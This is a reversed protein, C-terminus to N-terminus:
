RFILYCAMALLALLIYVTRRNSQSGYRKKDRLSSLPGFVEVTEGGAAAEQARRDESRYFRVRKEREEKEPDSFRYHYQFKRPKPTRFV